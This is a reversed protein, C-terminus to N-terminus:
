EPFLIEEIVGIYDEELEAPVWMVTLLGSFDPFDARAYYREGDVEGTVFPVDYFEELYGDWAEIVFLEPDSFPYRAAFIEINDEPVLVEGSIYMQITLPWNYSEFVVDYYDDEYALVESWGPGVEWQWFYNDEGPFM